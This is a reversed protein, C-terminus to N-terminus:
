ASDDDDKAEKKGDDFGKDYGEDYGEQKGDERAEKLAENFHNQCIVHEAERNCETCTLNVDM